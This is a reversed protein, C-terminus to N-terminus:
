APPASVPALTEEEPSGAPRHRRRVARTAVTAVVSAGATTLSLALVGGVTSPRIIVAAVAIGGLAVWLWLAPRRALAAIEANVLVYVLAYLAGVGAFGAAYPALHHYNEGGALGVALDSFIASIAVLLVGCAATSALTIRVAHRRAQAFAPLAVVTLVMPAWLAGKTLVSGVSYAGAEDAPLLARALVLDAYSIALMAIGATSARLVEREGVRAGRPRRETTLVSGRWLALHGSLAAIAVVSAYAAVAGVALSATIGTGAALAVLMGGYRAVGLLVLGVALRNYRRRGQLEGLWRGAIIVPFTLIALLVPQIAPLDLTASLVPVAVLLAGTAIAATVLSIRGAGEVADQRAWRVALATQLGVGVVAVVAGVALLAALAGLEAATLLRAALVPVVYALANVAMTAAGVMAGAGLVGRASRLSGAGPLRRGRLLTRSATRAANTM